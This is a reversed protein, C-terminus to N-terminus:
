QLTDININYCEKKSPPRKGNNLYDDVLYKKFDPTELMLDPTYNNVHRAIMKYLKFCPYREEGNRKYLVNLGKDDTCLRVILQKFPSLKHVNEPTSLTIDPVCYDFISCALRCLDFSYNPEVTPKTPNYCPEFNYQTYADGNKQYCDGCFTQGNITFISRGFDIIKYIKGYTPVLYKKGNYEYNIYKKNTEVFMVNNTHLDNHTFKYLKQYTALIMIIQMMCSFLEEENLEDNLILSDLTDDCSEICIMQVPFEPITADIREDDYTSCWSGEDDDNEGEDNTDDMSNKSDEKNLSSKGNNYTETPEEEVDAVINGGTSFNIITNEGNDTTYSTNSDYSSTSMTEDNDYEDVVVDEIVKDVVEELKDDEQNSDLLEGFDTVEVLEPINNDLGLDTIDEMDDFGGTVEDSIDLTKKPTNDELLEPPVHFQKGVNSLFYKSHLLYDVDDYINAVFDKKISLFSGYWEVGHIFGKEVLQGNIVNFINDVYSSNFPDLLKPIVQNNEPSQPLSPLNTIQNLENAYVGVMYKIPDLLPANKIFIEVSKTRGNVSNEVTANYYGPIPHKSSTTSKEKSGESQDRSDISDEDDSEDMIPSDIKKLFWPSSINISNYNTSNLVFFNNYTPIYNQTKTYGYKELSSFVVNNKRKTYQISTM